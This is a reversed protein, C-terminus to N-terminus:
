TMSKVDCSPKTRANQGMDEIRLGKVPEIAGRKDHGVSWNKTITLRLSFTSTASEMHCEPKPPQFGTSVLRYVPYAAVAHITTGRRSSALCLINRDRPRGASGLTRHVIALLSPMHLHLAEGHVTHPRSDVPQKPITPPLASISTASQVRCEPKARENKRIGCSASITCPRVGAPKANWLRAVTPIWILAASRGVSLKESEV